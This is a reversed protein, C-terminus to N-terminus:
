RPALARLNNIWLTSKRSAQDAIGAPDLFLIQHVQALDLKANPDKSDSAPQFEHFSIRIHRVESNGPVDVAMNFKVGGRQEVQVVLKAAHTAAAAFALETKGALKGRPIRRLFGAVRNPELRYDAQMAHGELPKGTVNKLSVEGAALWMVQPTTFSEIRFGGNEVPTPAPVAVPSVLFDSLYLSHAGKKVNFIGALEGGDAQAFLQGIDAIAISEVQDLDLRNDPDKPDGPEDTLLFDSPSLEVRQWGTGPVDFTAIYRGGEHEGLVLGIQTRYDTKVWFHFARAKTLEGGPTPLVLANFEGKKVQYDYQLVPKGERMRSAERTVSLKSSDGLTTWGGEGTEFTHRIIADPAKQGTAASGGVWLPALAALLWGTQRHM